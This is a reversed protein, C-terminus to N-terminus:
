VKSSYQFIARDVMNQSEIHIYQVLSNTQVLARMTIGINEVATGVPKGRLTCPVEGDGVDMSRVQLGGGSSSRLPSMCCYM